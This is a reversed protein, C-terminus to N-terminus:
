RTVFVLKRTYQLRRLHRSFGLLNLWMSLGMTGWPIEAPDRFLSHQINILALYSITKTQGHMRYANMITTEYNSFYILPEDTIGKAQFRLKSGMSKWLLSMSSRSPERSSEVRLTMSLCTLRLSPIGDVVHIVDQFYFYFQPYPFKTM